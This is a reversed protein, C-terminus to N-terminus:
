ATLSGFIQEHMKRLEGRLRNLEASGDTRNLADMGGMRASIADIEARADEHSLYGTGTPSGELKDIRQKLSYTSM